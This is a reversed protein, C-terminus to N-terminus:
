GTTGGDPLVFQQRALDSFLRESSYHKQLLSKSDIVLDRNADNFEAWNSYHERRRREEILAIFFWSITEHYKGEAGFKSTILRLADTYRQITELFSFQELMQWAVYVHEEHNFQEPEIDATVFDRWNVAASM